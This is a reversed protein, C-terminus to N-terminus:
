KAEKEKPMLKEEFANIEAMQEDALKDKEARKEDSMKRWEQHHKKHLALCEKTYKTVLEESFGKEKIENMKKTKLATKENNHKIMLDFKMPKYKKMLAKWANEHKTEMELLKIAHDIAGNEAAVAKTACAILALSLVITPIFQLSKM